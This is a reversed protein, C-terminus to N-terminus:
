RGVVAEGVRDHLGIVCGLALGLGVVMLFRLHRYLVGNVAVLM